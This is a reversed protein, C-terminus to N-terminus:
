PLELAAKTLPAHDASIGNVSARKVGDKDLLTIVNSHSYEGNKEQKYSIDLLAALERISGSTKGALVVWKKPDLEKDEMFKRLAAPTDNKQDFSVMVFRLGPKEALSKEIDKLKKVILPCTFQCRTYVMTIVVPQGRLEELKLAKGSPDVWASRTQYLSNTPVGAALASVSFLLVPILSRLSFRLEM